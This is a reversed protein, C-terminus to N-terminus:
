PPYFNDSVQLYWECALRQHADRIVRQLLSTFLRRYDSECMAVVRFVRDGIVNSRFLLLQCELSTCILSSLLVDVCLVYLVDIVCTLDARATLVAIKLRLYGAWWHERGRHRCKFVGAVSDTRKWLHCQVQNFILRKWGDALQRWSATGCCRQLREDDRIDVAESCCLSEHTQPATPVRLANSNYKPQTRKHARCISM